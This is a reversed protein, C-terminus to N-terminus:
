LHASVLPLRVHLLLYQQLMANESVNKKVMLEKKEEPTVAYFRGNEILLSMAPGAAPNGPKSSNTKSMGVDIMIVGGNAKLEIVQSPTTTHGIVIHQIGFNKIAPLLAERVKNDDGEGMHRTSLPGDRDEVIDRGLSETINNNITQLSMTAYKPSFGAHLFLIDNIKIVTNHARIWKGYKGEATMAKKFADMGGYPEAETRYLNQYFGRLMFADNNGILAHVAGGADKAQSELDMLLDMAKKSDPGRGMIDGVQVLHTKGGIWKNNDDIVGNAKLCKVMQDYDGHVDGVAVIRSVNSWEYQREAAWLPISAVLTLITVVLLTHLRLLNKKM